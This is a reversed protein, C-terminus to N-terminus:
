DANDFLLQAEDEKLGFQELTQNWLSNEVFGERPKEELNMEIDLMLSWTRVFDFGIDYAHKMAKFLGLHLSRGEARGAYAYAFENKRDDWKANQVAPSCLSIKKEVVPLNKLLTSAPFLDGDLNTLVERQAFGYSIQSQPLVDIKIGIYESVKAMFKRYKTKDVTLVVDLPLIVRFKYPNESDSTLAMHFQYDCLIDYAENIPIGAGDIDLVIFNAGGIINEKGRICGKPNSFLKENYKAGEEKTKFRFPAYAFDNRLLNALKDFTTERYIYGDTIFPVREDKAMKKATEYDHGEDIFHQLRLPPVKRYSMRYKDEITEEMETYIIKDDVQELLATGSAKSNASVLLDKVHAAKKIWGKKLMEHISLPKGGDLFHDLLIEYTQRNAKNLFKGLGYAVLEVFSIGERLDQMSIKSRGDIACYMGALKLAKWHRHFQELIVPELLEEDENEKDGSQMLGAKLKALQACYIKYAKYMRKVDKPLDIINVDNDCLDNAIRHSLDNIEAKIADRRDEDEDLEDIIADADLEEDVEAVEEEFVPYDFCVRRALKSILETEVDSLIKPDELIGHESGIFLGSMGMGYVPESQKTRDKVAKSEFNGSDFLESILQINQIIDQNTQFATSVEDVFLSPMGIGERKFDNLRQVMGELTSLSNTLPAIPRLEADDGVANEAREKEKETRIANIVDCGKNFASRATMVSSTKQAGSKALIFAIMNCPVYNGDSYEFRVNFHNIFTCMTFNSITLSMTDPLDASLVESLKLSLANLEGNFMNESDLKEKM